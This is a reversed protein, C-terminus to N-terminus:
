WRPKAVLYTQQSGAHGARQDDPASGSAVFKSQPPSPPPPGLKKRPPKGFQYEWARWTASPYPVVKGKMLRQRYDESKRLIEPTLGDHSMPVGMERALGGPKLSDLYGDLEELCPRMQLFEDVTM